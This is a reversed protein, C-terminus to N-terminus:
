LEIKGELYLEILRRLIKAIPILGAKVKLQAMLNDDLRFTFSTM